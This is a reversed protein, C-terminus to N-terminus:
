NGKYQYIKSILDNRSYTILAGIEKDFTPKHNLNLGDNFITNTISDILNDLNTKIENALTLNVGLLLDGFSKRLKAREEKILNIIEIKQDENLTPTTFKNEISHLQKFFTNIDNLHPQIILEKFWQLRINQEQLTLTETKDNKDKSRQYVFIYYALFLNVIAIIINSFDSFDSISWSKEIYFCCSVM